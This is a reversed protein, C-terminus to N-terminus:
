RFVKFFAAFVKQATPTLKTRRWADAAKKIVEVQTPYPHITAAIKGLGIKQSIALYLEGLIDGAHDAVLTAGVIRDTGKKLHLRLFGEESGELQSRDVESLPVTLTEVDIGQEEAENEYLGVHAIEPDTYTCWPVVLDSARKGGFFLSNQIAIRALADAMHTFKYKSAVDGVAYVRGNSTRLRDDVEIGHRGYKVGAADLGIGETNPM